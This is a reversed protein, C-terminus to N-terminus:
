GEEGYGNDKMKSLAERFGASYDNPDVFTEPYSENGQNGGPMMDLMQGIKKMAEQKTAATLTKGRGEPNWAMTSERGYNGNRQEVPMHMVFTKDDAKKIKLHKGDSWM